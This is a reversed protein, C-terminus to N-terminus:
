IELGEFVKWVRDAYGMGVSIWGGFGRFVFRGLDLGEGGGGRSM